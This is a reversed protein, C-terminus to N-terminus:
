PTLKTIKKKAYLSKSFDVFSFVIAPISAIFSIGLSFYLLIKILWLLTGWGLLSFLFITVPASIKLRVILRDLLNDNGLIWYIVLSYVVFLIVVYLISVKEEGKELLKFAYYHLLPGPVNGVYTQHIDNDFDGVIVIRDKMMEGLEEASHMGLVESSLYPYRVQGMEGRSVTINSPLPLFRMNYALSHGSFYLPGYREMGTGTLLRHAKLAMSEKDEQIYEYRSFGSFMNSRYDAMGTKENLSEDYLTYGDVERHDSILINPISNITSFLASDNESVLGAEFRIDMFVFRPDSVEVIKLFKLLSDRDTIPTHGITDGFEDMVPVLAKDIGTNVIMVDDFDDPTQRHSLYGFWNLSESEDFLPFSLNSLLYDAIFIIAACVLSIAIRRGM